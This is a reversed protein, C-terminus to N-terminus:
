HNHLAQIIIQESLRIHIGKAHKDALYLWFAFGPLAALSCVIFARVRAGSDEACVDTEM